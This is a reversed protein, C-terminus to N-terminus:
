RCGSSWAEGQVGLGRSVMVIEVQDGLTRPPEEQGRVRSVGVLEAQEWLM